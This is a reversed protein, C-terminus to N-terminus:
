CGAGTSGLPVTTCLGDNPAVYMIIITALGATATNGAGATWKVWLDYGGNDGTQTAGGGTVAQIGSVLSADVEGTAHVSMSSSVLENASTSSIGLTLVDSSTSNFAVYTYVRVSTVIANYPLAGNLLKVACANTTQTCMNFSLTTRIYHLAQVDLQRPPVKPANVDTRTTTQAWVQVSPTAFAAVLAVLVAAVGLRLRVSSLLRKMAIAEKPRSSPSLPFRRSIM